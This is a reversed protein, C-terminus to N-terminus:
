NIIILFSILFKFINEELISFTWALYTNSELPRGVTSASTWVFWPTNLAITGDPAEVPYYSANSNLSM